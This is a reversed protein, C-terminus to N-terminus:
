KWTPQRDREIMIMRKILPYVERALARIDPAAKEEGGTEGPPEEWVRQVQEKTEPARALPAVALELGSHNRSHTLEPIADSTYRFLEESYAVSSDARPRAPSTVPLALAPQRAYKYSPSSPVYERSQLFGYNESKDSVPVNAAAKFLQPSPTTMTRSISKIVPLPKIVSGAISPPRRYSLLKEAFGEAFGRDELCSGAGTDLSLIEPSPTLSAVDEATYTAEAEQGVQKTSPSAVPERAPAQGIEPALQQAVRYSLKRRREDPTVEPSPLSGLALGDYKDATRQLPSRDFRKLVEDAITPKSLSRQLDPLAKSQLTAPQESITLTPLTHDTRITSEDSSQITPLSAIFPRAAHKDTVGGSEAEPRIGQPQYASRIPSAHRESISESIPHPRAELLSRQLTARQTIPTLVQSLPQTQYSHQRQWNVHALREQTGKIQGHDVNQTEESQYITRNPTGGQSVHSLKSDDSDERQQPVAIQGTVLPMSGTRAYHAYYSPRITGTLRDASTPPSLLNKIVAPYAEDADSVPHEEKRIHVTRTVQNLNLRDVMQKTKPPMATAGSPRPLKDTTGLPEKRTVPPTFLDSTMLPLPERTVTPYVEATKDVPHEGGAAPSTQVHRTPDLDRSWLGTDNTRPWNIAHTTQSPSHRRKQRQQVWTLNLMRQWVTPVLMSKRSIFDSAGSALPLHAARLAASTLGTRNVAWRALRSNSDGLHHQGSDPVLPLITSGITSGAAFPLARDAFRKVLWPNLEKSEQDQNPKRNSTSGTRPM